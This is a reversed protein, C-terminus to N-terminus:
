GLHERLSRFIADYVAQDRSEPLVINIHYELARLGIKQRELPRSLTTGDISGPLPDGNDAGDLQNQGDASSFALPTPSQSSFDGIEALDEFTKAILRIVNDTKQGAYLTRLKNRVEEVNMEHANKNVAFLDAYADKVAEAVIVRWKTKDLFEYYRPLPKGDADIFGLEKLLGIFVRDNTSKFGLTELFRQSFRDPPDANLMAEFYEPIRGTQVYSNPLRAM